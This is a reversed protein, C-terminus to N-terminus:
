SAARPRVLMPGYYLLFGGFAAIWFGASVM